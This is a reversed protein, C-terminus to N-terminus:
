GRRYRRNVTGCGECTIKLREKVWKAKLVVGVTLPIRGWEPDDVYGIEEAFAGQAVLGNELDLAELWLGCNQCFWYSKQQGRCAAALLAMATFQQTFIRYRM